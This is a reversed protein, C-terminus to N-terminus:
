FFFDTLTKKLRAHPAVSPPRNETTGGFSNRCFGRRRPGAATSTRVARRRCASAFCVMLTPASNITRPTTWRRTGTGLVYVGGSHLLCRSTYRQKTGYGQLEPVSCNPRGREFIAARPNFANSRRNLSKESIKGWELWRLGNRRIDVCVVHGWYSQATNM